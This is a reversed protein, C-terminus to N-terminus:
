FRSVLYLLGLIVLLYKAVKTFSIANSSSGCIIRHWIAHEIASRTSRPIIIRLVFFLGVVLIAISILLHVLQEM